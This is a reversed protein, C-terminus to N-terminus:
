PAGAASAEPTTTTATTETATTTTTGAPPVAGSPAADADYVYASLVLEAEIEPFGDPGEVMRLFDLTFFRGSTYLRGNRVAVLNRVRFLFDSLGFYNGEFVFRIPLVRYGGLSVPIEPSIQVFEIGVAEAISDLELIIGPMDPRDPMAKTLEFLDAVKIREKPANPEAALKATAVQTELLEVQDALRGAEARKPRILFFYAAVAVVIVLAIAVVPWTPVQKKV